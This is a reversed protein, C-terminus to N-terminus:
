LESSSFKVDTINERINNKVFDFLMFTMPKKTIDFYMEKLEDLNLDISYESLIMRLDRINIGRGLAIYQVNQRIIKPTGFYSQSIYILSYSLKRARIFAEGIKPDKTLVLDDFILLKSIKKSSADLAPIGSESYLHIKTNKIKEALMDYLPEHEKTVVDISAFTKDMM